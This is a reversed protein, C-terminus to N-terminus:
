QIRSSNGGPKGYVLTQFLHVTKFYMDKGILLVAYVVSYFSHGGMQVAGSDGKGGKVANGALSSKEFGNRGSGVPHDRFHDPVKHLRRQPGM